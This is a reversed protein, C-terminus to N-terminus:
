EPDNKLGKATLYFSVERSGEHKVTKVFGDAGLKYKPYGLCYVDYTTYDLKQAITSCAVASTASNAGLKRLLKVFALRRDAAPISSKLSRDKSATPKSSKAPKKSPAKKATVKTEKKSSVKKAPKKSSKSKKKPKPTVVTATTENEATETEANEVDEIIEPM